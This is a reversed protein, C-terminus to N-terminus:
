DIREVKDAQYGIGFTFAAVKKQFHIRAKEGTCPIWGAPVMETRRHRDFRWQKNRRILKVIFGSRGTEIIEVDVPNELDFTNPGAKKLKVQQAQLITGSRSVTEMFTLSIKDGEAPRWDAPEFSTTKKKLHFLRAVNDSEKLRFKGFGMESVIGKAEEAHAGVIGLAFCVIMGCIWNKGTRM